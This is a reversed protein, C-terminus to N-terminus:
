EYVSNTSIERQNRIVKDGHNQIAALDYAKAAHAETSYSGVYRKKNNVM